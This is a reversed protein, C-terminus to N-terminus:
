QFFFFLLSFNFFIYLCPFILFISLFYSPSLSSIAVPLIFSFSFLILVINFFFFVNFFLLLSFFLLFSFLLPHFVFPSSFFVLLLFFRFYFYILLSFHVFSFSLFLFVSLSCFIYPFFPFLLFIFSVLSLSSFYFVHFSFSFFYHHFTLVSSFCLLFPFCILDQSLSLTLFPSFSTYCMAIYEIFFSVLTSLILSFSFFFIFVFFLFPFFSFSIFSPSFYSFALSLSPFYFLTYNLHQYLSPPFPVSNLTVRRLINSLSFYLRFSANKEEDSELHSELFM